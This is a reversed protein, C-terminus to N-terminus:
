AQMNDCFYRELRPGDEVLYVTKGPDAYITIKGPNGTFYPENKIWWDGPMNRETFKMGAKM